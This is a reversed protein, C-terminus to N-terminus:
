ARQRLRAVADAMGLMLAPDHLQNLNPNLFSEAAAAEGFGRAVLLGAAIPSMGLAAALEAAQNSDPRRVIWRKASM